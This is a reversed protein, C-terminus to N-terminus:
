PCCKRAMPKDKPHLTEIMIKELQAGLDSWEPIDGYDTRQDTLRDSIAKALSGTDEPDYLWEPHGKLLQIMSGVKAAIMPIRCAMMERAKQPFCYRGFDNDRNCVVAVDLANLFLPIREYPLMGLYHIRPDRPLTVHLPGALVLSLDPHSEKLALFANLLLPIGRNKELAGATGVLCQEPPLGLEARCVTKEMPRFLNKPVANELVFLPGRRGHSRVFSALPQSICTVVDCHKTVWRYIQKLLPLRAALYYEFNDYLDFILPIRHKRSLLYGILGYFSDSGAWIVDMHRAQQDAQRIFHLLGPLKASTANMSKWLVKGDRVYGAQKRDYSLCLGRVTHGKEGLALPIERFRGYLDDILDKNMYQRKTLVLIRM